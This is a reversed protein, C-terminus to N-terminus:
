FLVLLVLLYDRTFSVFFSFIFFSSSLPLPLFREREAAQVAVGSSPAAKRSGRCQWRGGGCCWWRLLGDLLVAEAAGPVKEEGKNNKRKTTKRCASHM